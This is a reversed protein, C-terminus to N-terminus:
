SLGKTVTVWDIRVPDTFQRVEEDQQTELLSKFTKIVDEVTGKRFSKKPLAPM